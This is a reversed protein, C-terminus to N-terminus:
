NLRPFEKKLIEDLYSKTFISNAHDSIHEGFSKDISALKSIADFYKKLRTGIQKNEKELRNYKQTNKLDKIYYEIMLNIKIKNNKINEPNFNKYKKIHEIFMNFIKEIIDELKPKNNLNLNENNTKTLIENKLASASKSANVRHNIKKTIKKNGKSRTSSAVNKKPVANKPIANKKNIDEEIKLLNELNISNFLFKNVINNKNVQNNYNELKKKLIELHNNNKILTDKLEKTKSILEAAYKNFLLAKAETKKIDDIIDTNNIYLIIQEIKNIFQDNEIEIDDFTFNLESNDSSDSYDSTNSNTRVSSAFSAEKSKNKNAKLIKILNKNNVNFNKNSGHNRKKSQVKPSYSNLIFFYLIFYLFRFNKLM